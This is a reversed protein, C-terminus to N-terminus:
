TKNRSEIWDCFKQKRSSSVGVVEWTKIEKFIKRQSKKAENQKKTGKGKSVVHIFFNTAKLFVTFMLSSYSIVLTRWWVSFKFSYFRKEASLRTGIIVLM